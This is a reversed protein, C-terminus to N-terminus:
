VNRYVSTPTMSVVVNRDDNYFRGCLENLDEIEGHEIAERITTVYTPSVLSSLLFVQLNTRVLTKNDMIVFDFGKRKYITNM